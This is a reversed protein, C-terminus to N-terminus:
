QKNQKRTIRNHAVVTVIFIIVNATPLGSAIYKGIRKGTLKGLDTAGHSKQTQEMVWQVFIQLPGAAAVGVGTLDIIACIGDIGTILAGYVVIEATTFERM